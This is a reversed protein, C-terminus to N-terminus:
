MGKLPTADVGEEADLLYQFSMGLSFIDVAKNQEPRYTKSDSHMEPAVYSETGAFTARRLSHEQSGEFYRSEGFDAIKVVPQGAKGAILINDPKIDRHILPPDM